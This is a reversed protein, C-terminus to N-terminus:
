FKKLNKQNYRKKKWGELFVSSLFNKGEQGKCDRIDYNRFLKSVLKLPVGQLFKINHKTNTKSGM